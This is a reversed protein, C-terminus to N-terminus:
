GQSVSNRSHVSGGCAHSLRGTGARMVRGGVLRREGRLRLRGGHGGPAGQAPRPVRVHGERQVFAALAALGHAFRDSRSVKPKAEAAAKAAVLESDPEIGIAALLNQQAPELVSRGVRPARVRRGLREGEFVTEEPLQAWDVRGDSELWWM